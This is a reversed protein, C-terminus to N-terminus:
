DPTRSSVTGQSVEKYGKSEDHFRGGRNLKELSGAGSEAPVAPTNEQSIQSETVGWVWFSGHKRDGLPARQLSVQWDGQGM